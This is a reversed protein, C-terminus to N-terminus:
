NNIPNLETVVIFKMKDNNNFDEILISNTFNFFVAIVCRESRKLIIGGIVNLEMAVSGNKDIKKTFIM